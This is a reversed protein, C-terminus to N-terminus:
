EEVGSMVVFRVSGDSTIEERMVRAPPIKDGKGQHSVRAYLRRRIKEQNKTHKNGRM